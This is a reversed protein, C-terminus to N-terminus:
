RSRSRSRSRSGLRRTRHSRRRRYSRSPRASRDLKEQSKIAADEAKDASLNIEEHTSISTIASVYEDVDRKASRASVYKSNAKDLKSSNLISLVDEFADNASTDTIGLISDSEELASALVNQVSQLLATMDDYANEVIQSNEGGNALELDNEASRLASEADSISDNTQAKIQNLNAEAQDLKAELNFIYEPTNGALERNLNAQARSVAANAQAIRANLEGLQLDVIIDGKKVEANIQKYIKGVRGSAEFRLDLEDASEVNGTADVTQVLDGMKVKVTDYEVPKNAKQIQIFVIVLIILILPIGIYVLKRKYWKKKIPKIIKQEM